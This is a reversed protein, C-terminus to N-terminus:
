QIGWKRLTVGCAMEGPIMRIKRYSTLRRPDAWDGSLVGNTTVDWRMSEDKPGEWREEEREGNPHCIHGRTQHIKNSTLDATKKEKHECQNPKSVSAMPQTAALSTDDGVIIVLGHDTKVERVQGGQKVKM